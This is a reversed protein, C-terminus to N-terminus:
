SNTINNRPYLIVMLVFSVFILNIFHPMAGTLFLLILGLLGITEGLVLLILHTTGISSKEKLLDGTAPSSEPTKQLLKKRLLFVMTVLGASVFYFVQILNRSGSLPRIAPRLILGIALYTLLSFLLAFYILQMRRM